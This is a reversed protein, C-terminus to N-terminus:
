NKIFIVNFYFAFNPLLYKIKNVKYFCLSFLVGMIGFGSGGGEEIVHFAVYMFAICLPQLINSYSSFMVFDFDLTTNEKMRMRLTHSYCKSKEFLDLKLLNM